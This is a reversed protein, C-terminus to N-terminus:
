KVIEKFYQNINGTVIRNYARTMYYKTSPHKNNEFERRRAYPVNYAGVQGGARVWVTNPSSTADVRISNRLAGSLVPANVKAQNHMANGMKVMGRMFNRRIQNIENQYWTMKVQTTTM